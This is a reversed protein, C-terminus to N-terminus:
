PASRRSRQMRGLSPADAFALLPIVLACGAAAGVLDIGYALAPSLGARTLALTLVVGAAAFPLALLGAFTLLGFFEMLGEVPLLPMSMALAMSLPALLAFISCYRALQRPVADAEFAERRVFVWIAGVTMGLMALSIVFFALHYWSIVSSIRTLLIEAILSACAICFIGLYTPRARM